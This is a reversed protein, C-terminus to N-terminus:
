GAARAKKVLDLFQAQPVPRERTTCRRAEEPGGQRSCDVTYAEQPIAYTKRQPDMGEHRRGINNWNVLDDLPVIYGAGIYGVQDPELYLRTM